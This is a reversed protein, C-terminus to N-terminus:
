ILPKFNGPVSIRGLDKGVLEKLVGWVDFKENPDILHPLNRRAKDISVPFKQFVPNATL